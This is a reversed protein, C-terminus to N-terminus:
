TGPKYNVIISHEQLKAVSEANVPNEWVDVQVLNACDELPTLDTVKNYDLHVYNLYYLGELGKVSSVTNYDLQVVALPCDKRFTPIAAIENHGADFEELKPLGALVSIDQVANDQVSLHTLETCAALPQLDAIQNENADLTKLAKMDTLADLSTLGCGSVNLNELKTCASLASISSITNNKLNLVKLETLGALPTVSTFVNGSLDLTELKTLGSIPSVSRLACSSLRLSTLDTLGGITKLSAESLVCGSLDLSELQTLAALPAYDTASASTITLSKLGTFLSLQKVDGLSNLELTELEWLDNTMLQADPEKGLLTRVQKDLAPDELTVPEIVGAITYGAYVAQSVLGNEDVAIACITSEGGPLEIPGTYLDDERSPYAGDTRLYIKNPSQATVSVYTAYYGSDPSLEPPAPRRQQLEERVADNAARSLMQDADLFKGQAVYIRSLAAYLETQEPNEQIASVLMYEAKTYNGAGEYAAALSVTVAPADTMQRAITYSRIASRYRGGALASDGRSVYFEAGVGSFYLWACAGAALLVLIILIPILIRFVSRKKKEM